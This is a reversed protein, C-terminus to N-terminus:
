QRARVQRLWERGLPNPDHYVSFAYREGRRAKYDMSRIEGETNTSPSYSIPKASALGEIFKRRVTIRQGRTFVQYAGSVQITFHPDADEDDTDLIDVTVLEENFLLNELKKKRAADIESVVEFEPHVMKADVHANPNSLDDKNRVQVNFEQPDVADSGNRPTNHVAHKSM